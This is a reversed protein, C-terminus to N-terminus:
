GGPQSLAQAYTGLDFYDRWTKIRGQELEFVGVIPLEVSRDGARTRDIREAVVVNGASVLTLIEWRTDTWSATFNRIMAEIHARGSIPALPMNHYTGDETFYAALEVPDLRSWAEVFRRVVGENDHASRPAAAPVPHVPRDAVAEFRLRLATPGRLTLVNSWTLREDTRLPHDIRPLLEEFAVRAELRALAAGLCFHIGHGFALQDKPNRTVDFRDPDPFAREDRNASASLPAVVAGKPITVGALEVDETATRLLFQVPADYRLAEELMGAVLAPTSAVKAAPHALLALTANAILHTTTVNGAVLLTFTFIKVEDPTLAGDLSEARLLTGILDDTARVRRAAIVQDVYENMEALHQGIQEAEEQGPSDFVARMAADSWRKFDHHREPDIGLLEAIVSVPLPVAYDAVLDCEGTPVFRALRERAIERVRPELAAIRRPTFVRSVITRLRTHEPPDSGIISAATPDPAQGETGEPALDAPRRVASAMAASSFREPSRLIAVVDAYRSVAWVGLSPVKYAPAERRLEAYYPYPNERVISDLPDYAPERM